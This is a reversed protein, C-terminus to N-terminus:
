IEVSAFGTMDFRVSYHGPELNRLSFAGDSGSTTNSIRGTAKNTIGIKAGAIVAGSSDKLTGAITGGTEQGFASHNASLVFAALACLLVLTGKLSITKTM